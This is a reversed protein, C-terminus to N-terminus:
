EPYLDVGHEHIVLQLRNGSGSGDEIWARCNRDAPKFFVQTGVKLDLFGAQAKERVVASLEVKGPNFNLIELRLGSVLDTVEQGVINEIVQSARSTGQFM